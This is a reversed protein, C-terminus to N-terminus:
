DELRAPFTQPLRGGPEARGLLVDAIAHGAEQGGFWAQVVARVEDLWPMLVPGGTQLLVITNPNARAVERVLEDQCGPLELGRNISMIAISSRLTTYHDALITTRDQLDPRRIICSRPYLSRHFLHVATCCAFTAAPTASLRRSRRLM